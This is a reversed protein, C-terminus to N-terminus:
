QAKVQATLSMLRLESTNIICFTECRHCLFVFWLYKGSLFHCHGQWMCCGVFLITGYEKFMFPSLFFFIVIASYGWSFDHLVATM